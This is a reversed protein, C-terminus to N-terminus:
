FMKKANKGTFKGQYKRRDFIERSVFMLGLSAPVAM